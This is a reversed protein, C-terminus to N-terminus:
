CMLGFEDLTKELFHRNSQNEKFIGSDVGLFEIVQKMEPTSIIWGSEVIKKLVELMMIDFKSPRIKDEHFRTKVFQCM